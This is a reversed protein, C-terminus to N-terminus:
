PPNFTLSNSFHAQRIKYVRILLAPQNEGSGSHKVDVETSESGVSNQVIIQDKWVIVCLCGVRERERESERERM